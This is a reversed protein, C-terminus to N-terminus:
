QNKRMQFILGRYIKREGVPWHQHKQADTQFFLLLNNTISKQTSIHKLYSFNSTFNIFIIIFPMDLMKAEYSDGKTRRVALRTRNSYSQSSLDIQNDVNASYESYNLVCQVSGIKFKFIICLFGSFYQSTSKSIM